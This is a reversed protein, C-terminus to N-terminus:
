LKGNKRFNKSVNPIFLTDLLAKTGKGGMHGGNHRNQFFCVFIGQAKKILKSCTRIGCLSCCKGDGNQIMKMGSPDAGHSGGMVALQLDIGQRSGKYFIGAAFKIHFGKSGGVAKEDANGSLAIGKGNGALKSKRIIDNIGGSGLDGCLILVKFIEEAIQLLATNGNFLLAKFNSGVLFLDLGQLFPQLSFIFLDVM